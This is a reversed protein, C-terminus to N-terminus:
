RRMSKGMRLYSLYLLVAVMLAIVLMIWGMNVDQGLIGVYETGYHLKIDMMVEPPVSAELIEYPEALLLRRLVITMHTFPVLSAVYTMSKGLVFLPMYIGSVFGVFTGLVGSLTGFANVTKILTVMFIMFSSSIFTFVILLGTVKMVTMVDYWYGSSIGVYLITLGWMVLTLTATVLIAAAYYSLIVKERRIPTVLFADLRKQELDLVVNGMIGLSLSVTNIVLIGGMMIGVTLYTKFSDEFVNMSEYSVYQRGIFLFYLALMILISLFSFFLAAKDRLFKLMHRKVLALFDDM